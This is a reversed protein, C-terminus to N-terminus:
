RSKVYHVNKATEELEKKLKKVAIKAMVKLKRM